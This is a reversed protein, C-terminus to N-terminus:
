FKLISDVFINQHITVCAMLCYMYYDRGKGVAVYLTIYMNVLQNYNKHNLSTIYVTRFQAM